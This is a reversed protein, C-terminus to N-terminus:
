RLLLLYGMTSFKGTSNDKMGEWFTGNSFKARIKWVYMDQPMLVGNMRGDWGEAPSGDILADTQWILQGYTSFIELRYEALKNGKPKFFATGDFTSEPAFVNPVYLSGSPNNSVVQIITDLCGKDSQVILQVKYAKNENYTHLPSAESSTNGDGFNWFYSSANTATETFQVPVLLSNDTISFLFNAEPKPNIKIFGLKAISDVCAGNSASLSVTYIGQSPYFHIPSTLTSTNNDGFNWSYLSADNSNNLFQISNPFCTEKPLADFNATPKNIISITKLLTDSCFLNRAILEVQYQGDANYVIQPNNTNSTANNHMFKWTYNNANSSNNLFQTQQAVCNNKTDFDAKPKKKVEIKQTATDSGCSGNAILVVNYTTDKEFVFSTNLNFDISGNVDNFMWYYSNAGAVNGNFNVKLPTCGVTPTASIGAFVENAKVTINKQITDSQCNNHAILQLIFVSDQKNPNIYTPTSIPQFITTTQGNGFYWRVSDIQGSSTNIIDAKFPSCGNTNSLFVNSTPNAKVKLLKTQIHNKCQHKSILKIEYFTDNIVPKKFDLIPLTPTNYSISDNNFYWTYSIANDHNTKFNLIFDKGTCSSDKNIEFEFNQEDIVQVPIFFTDVCQNANKAILKITYNGPANYIYTPYVTNSTGFGDGFDWDADILNGQVYSFDFSQNVCLKPLNTQLTITPHVVVQKFSTDKCNSANDTYTYKIQYTNPTLNTPDFLGLNSSIVGVGSWSGGPFYPDNILQLIKQNTFTKCIEQNPGASQGRPLVDIIITDSPPCESNVGVVYAIKYKGAAVIKPDFIGLISDIIGQGRWVGGSPTGVLQYNNATSCLVTDNGANPKPNNYTTISTTLTTDGCINNITLSIPFTGFNTYTINSPNKGLQNIPNGGASNWIYSAQADGGGATTDNYIFYDRPSITAPIYCSQPISLTDFAGKSAIRTNKTISGQGCYTEYSLTIEYSRWKNFRVVISDSLINGHIISFNPNNPPSTSDPAAVIVWFISRVTNKNKNIYIPVDIFSGSKNPMCIIPDLQFDISTTDLVVIRKITDAKDGCSGNSADLNLRIDFTGTDTFMVRFNTQSTGNLLQYGSNQGISWKYIPNACNAGIVIKDKNANGNTFVINDLRCVTDRSAIFPKLSDTIYVCTSINGPPCNGNYAELAISKSNSNCKNSGAGCSGEEFYYRLTDPLNSNDYVAVINDDVVFKYVTNNTNKKMKATDLYFEYFGPACFSTITSTTVDVTPSQGGIKVFYKRTAINCASNPNNGTVKYTITYDGVAYTHATDNFNNVVVVPSGDGWDIEYKTNTSKTLSQNFIRLEKSSPENCYTFSNTESLAADPTPNVRIVVRKNCPITPNPSNSEALQITYDQPTTRGRFIIKVINDNLSYPTIVQFDNNNANTLFPFVGRSVIIRHYTLTPQALTITIEEGACVNTKSVTFDCVAYLCINYTILLFFLIGRM